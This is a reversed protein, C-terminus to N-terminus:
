PNGGGGALAEKVASQLREHEPPIHSAFSAILEGDRDLLYKHFNWEPYEGAAGALRRYLPDARGERVHTKAFMPFEVSYTLRCFDKIEEADGPEQNGFDNSPFGLVALGADKYRDHLAELGAYQDTFACKSATNVILVVREAYADCLHVPEGGGLPTVRFDLNPPCAAWAGQSLLLTLLGTIMRKM